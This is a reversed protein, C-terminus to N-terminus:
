FNYRDKKCFNTRQIGLDQLRHVFPHICKRKFLLLLTFYYLSLPSSVGILVRKMELAPFLYDISLLLWLELGTVEDVM